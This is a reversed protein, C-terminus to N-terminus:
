EFIGFDNLGCHVKCLVQKYMMRDYSIIFLNISHKYTAQRIVVNISISKPLYVEKVKCTYFDTPNVVLVLPLMLYKFSSRNCM